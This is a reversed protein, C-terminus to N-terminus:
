LLHGLWGSRASEKGEAEKEDEEEEGGLERDSRAWGSAIM